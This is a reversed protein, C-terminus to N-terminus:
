PVLWEQPSLCLAATTCRFVRDGQPLAMQEVLVENSVTDNIYGNSWREATAGVLKMSHKFALNIGDDCASLMHSSNSPPAMFHAEANAAGKQSEFAAVVQPTIHAGFNDGIALVQFLWTLASKM